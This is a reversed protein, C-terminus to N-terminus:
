PHHQYCLEVFMMSKGLNWLGDDFVFYNVSGIFMLLVGVRVKRVLWAGVVGVVPDPRSFRCECIKVHM